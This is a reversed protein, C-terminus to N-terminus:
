RYSYWVEISFDGASPTGRRRREMLAVFIGIISGIVLMVGLYSPYIFTGVLSPNLIATRYFGLDPLWNGPIERRFGVNSAELLFLVAWPSIVIATASGYMVCYAVLQRRSIQGALLHYGFWVLLGLGLALSTMHHILTAIGLLVGALIAAKKSHQRLSRELLGFSILAFPMAMVSTFWGWLFVASLAPYAISVLFGAVLAAWWRLSFERALFVTSVGMAGYSLIFLTNYVTVFNTTSVASILGVM